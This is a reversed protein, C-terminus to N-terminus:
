TICSLPNTSSSASPRGTAWASPKNSAANTFHDLRWVEQKRTPDDSAAASARNLLDGYFYLTTTKIATTGSQYSHTYDAVEEGKFRGAIDNYTISKIGNLDGAAAGIYDDKYTNVQKNCDSDGALAARDLDAGYFYVSTQSVATGRFNYAATYDAVEEGKLRGATHNYTISKIEDMDSATISAIGAKSRRYTNVQSNCDSESAAWARKDTMGYFYVSTDSVLGGRNYNQTYDAVEEGKLRLAIHNYTVSRIKDLDAATIAM